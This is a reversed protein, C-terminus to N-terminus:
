KEELTIKLQLDFAEALKELTSLNPSQRGIVMHSYRCKALGAKLSLQEKDWGMYKREIEFQHILDKLCPSTEQKSM